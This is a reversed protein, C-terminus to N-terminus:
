ASGEAQEHGTCSVLLMLPLCEEDHLPIMWRRVKITDAQVQLKGAEEIAQWLRRELWVCATRMSPDLIHSALVEQAVDVDGNEGAAEAAAQLEV